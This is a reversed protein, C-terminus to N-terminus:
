GMGEAVKELEERPLDGTVIISLDGKDMRVVNGAPGMERGFRGAGGGQGAGREGRRPDSGDRGGRDRRGVGEGPGEERGRGRGQPGGSNRGGEAARMQIISLSGLGDSYRLEAALRDGQRLRHLYSGQPRYGRPVYGPSLLDFGVAGALTELDAAEIAVVPGREAPPPTQRAPPEVDFDITEYQTDSLARGDPALLVTRLPLNTQRDLWLDLGGGHLRRLALYLAPRGAVQGTGLIRARYHERLLDPDLNLPDGGARIMRAGRGRGGRAWVRGEAHIVETGKVPGDLYRIVVRGEGRHVRAHSESFGEPTYARTQVTGECAVTERARQAAVVLAIARQHRCHGYILLAGAVVVLTAFFLVLLTKVPVRGSRM